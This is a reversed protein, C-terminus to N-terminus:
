QAFYRAVQVTSHGGHHHQFAKSIGWLVFITVLLSLSAKIWNFQVDLTNKLFNRSLKLTLYIFNGAIFPMFFTHYNQLSKGEIMTALAGVFVFGSALISLVMSKKRNLGTSRLFSYKAIEHPIEHILVAITTYFGLKIDHLFTAAILAGDVISHISDSFLTSIITTQNKKSKNFLTTKKYRLSYELLFFFLVGSILYYVFYDSQSHAFAEPLLIFFTNGAFVGLMVSSLIEDKISRRPIAWGLLSALCVLILAVAIYFYVIM